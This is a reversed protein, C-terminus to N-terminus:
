SGSLHRMRNVELAFEARSFRLLRSSARVVFQAAPLRTLRDRRVPVPPQRASSSVGDCPLVAVTARQTFCIKCDLRVMMEEDGLAEPRPEQTAPVNQRVEPFESLRSLTGGNFRITYGAAQFRTMTVSTTADNPRHAAVPAFLTNVPTAALWGPPPALYQIIPRPYATNDGAGAGVGAGAGPQRADPNLHQASHHGSSSRPLTERERTSQGDPSAEVPSSSRRNSVQRRPTSPGTPRRIGTTGGTNQPLGINRPPSEHPEFTALNLNPSPPNQSPPHQLSGGAMNNTGSNSSPLSTPPFPVTEGRITRLPHRSQSDNIGQRRNSSRAGLNGQRNSTAAEHTGGLLGEPGDAALSHARFQQPANLHATLLQATEVRRRLPSYANMNGNGQAAQGPHNRSEVASQFGRAMEMNNQTNQQRQQYQMPNINHNGTGQANPGSSYRLEVLAQAAEMNNQISQQTQPHQMRASNENENTSGHRGNDRTQEM